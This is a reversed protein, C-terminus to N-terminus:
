QQIYKKIEEKVFEWRNKIFLNKQYIKEIEDYTAFKVESVEETQMTINELNIDQEVIYEELWVNGTKYHQIKIGKEVDLEIGLEELTERKLAELANEGKRVSGGTMAWVNPELKKQPSRRQILIQKKSNIIWVDVGQHYIGKQWVKEDNKHMTEGTLNGDEDLINWIEETANM